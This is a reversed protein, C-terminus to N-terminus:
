LAAIFRIAPNSTHFGGLFGGCYVQTPQKIKDFVSLLTTTGLVVIRPELFLILLPTSQYRITVLFSPVPMCVCVSVCVCLSVRLCVCVCVSVVCLCVCVFVCVYVIKRRFLTVSALLAKINKQM